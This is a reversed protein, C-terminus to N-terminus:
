DNFALYAETIRWALHQEPTVATDPSTGFLFTVNGAQFQATLGSDMVLPLAHVSWVFAGTRPVDLVTFGSGAANVGVSYASGDAIIRSRMILTVATDEIAPETFAPVPVSVLSNGHESPGTIADVQFFSGDYNDSLVTDGSLIIVIM